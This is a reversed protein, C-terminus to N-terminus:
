VWVCRLKGGPAQSWICRLRRSRGPTARERARSPVIQPSTGAPLEFEHAAGLGGTNAPEIRPRIAITGALTSRTM